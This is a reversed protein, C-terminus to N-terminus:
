SDLGCQTYIYNIDVCSYMYYKNLVPPNRPWLWGRGDAALCCSLRVQMQRTPRLSHWRPPLDESNLPSVGLSPVCIKKGSISRQFGSFHWLRFPGDGSFGLWQQLFDVLTPKSWTLLSLLQSKQAM